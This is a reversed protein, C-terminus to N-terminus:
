SNIWSSTYLDSRENFEAEWAIIEWLQGSIGDAFTYSAKNAAGSVPFILFMTGEYQSM